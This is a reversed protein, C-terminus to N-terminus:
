ETRFVIMPDVDTARWVPVACAVLATALLVAVAAGFSVPDFMGVGYLMSATLRTVGVELLLGVVIGAVVAALSHALSRLFIERRTSGLATRIGIERKTQSVIYSIVGYTGLVALSLAVIGFAGLLQAGLRRETLLQDLVQRGTRIRTSGLAPELSTVSARVTKAVAEPDGTTRVYVTGEPSLHQKLPMYIIPQPAENVSAYTVTNALGVVAVDWDQLLFRLRKGIPDDGGPWLAKAAAANVIAVMPRDLDDRDDFDRGRLRIGVTDFFRPAVGVIGALRGNSPDSIDGDASFVTRRFSGSLPPTDSIAVSAVTPLARLRETVADYFARVRPSPYRLSALDVSTLVQQELDFGLDTQQAARLSRIFLGATVLAVVALGIQVVVLLGHVPRRSGSVRTEIAGPHVTGLRRSARWAPGLAFVVTALVSVGVAFLVVRGDFTFDLNARLNRPVLTTALGKVWYASLLGLLCAVAALLLGEILLQGVIDRRSAGLAVRISFEERRHSARALLLHAVNSCAILLVVVVIMSTIVGARAYMTRQSPPVVTHGLPVLMVNRGANEKPYDQQLQSGVATMAAEAQRFSVGAKLRAVMSAVRAARLNYWTRINGTLLQDHWVTPIWVEAAPLGGINAFEPPMVGIITYDHGNLRIRTGIAHDDSGLQSAWLVHSVVVVPPSNPDDDQRSIARGHEPRIGLVEFYDATTLNLVVRSSRDGRELTCASDVIVALGSFVTNRSQYDKANLYSTSQYEALEGSRGRTTSYILVLESPDKVPLAPMFVAKVFTFIITSAAIGLTLSLLATITFGPQRRLMRAAFQADQLVRQIAPM